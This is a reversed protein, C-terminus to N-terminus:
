QTLCLYYLIFVLSSVSSVLLIWELTSFLNNM